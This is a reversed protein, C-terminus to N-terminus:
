YRSSKYPLLIEISFTVFHKSSSDVSSDFGYVASGSRSLSEYFEQSRVSSFTGSFGSKIGSVGALDGENMWVVLEGGVKELGELFLWGEFGLDGELGEDSKFMVISFTSIVRFSFLCLIEALDSFFLKCCIKSLIWAFGLWLRLLFSVSM